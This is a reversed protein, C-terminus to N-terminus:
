SLNSVQNNCNSPQRVTVQLSNIFLPIWVLEVPTWSVNLVGETVVIDRYHAIVHVM